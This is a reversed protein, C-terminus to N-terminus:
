PAPRAPGATIVIRFFCRSDELLRPAWLYRRRCWIIPSLMRSPKQSLACGPRCLTRSTKDNQTPARLQEGAFVINSLPWPGAMCPKLVGVASSIWFARACKTGIEYLCTSTCGLGRFSCLGMSRGPVVGGSAILNLPVGPRAPAVQAWRVKHTSQRVGGGPERTRLHELGPFTNRGYFM